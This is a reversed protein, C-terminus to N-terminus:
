SPHIYNWTLSMSCLILIYFWMNGLLRFLADKKFLYAFFFPLLMLSFIIRYQGSTLGFAALYTNSFYFLGILILFLLFLLSKKKLSDQLMNAVTLSMLPFLPIAYWGSHGTQSLTFLLLLIYILAPINIYKNTTQNQLSYFLGFIGLFYWPDNYVKNVITPQLFLLWLTGPGIDRGGQSFQIKLFQDFDYYAGYGLLLMGFSFFTALFILIYKRKAKGLLLLYLISLFLFIGLIKTLFALGCIIGLVIIRKTTIHKEVLIYLYIAGLMLLTLLNEAVVVRSNMIFMTASSYILLAWLGTKFGFLKTGLLFLLVPSCLSLIIPLLRITSLQIKQFTNEGFFLAWGGTALGNLPPHDFYPQVIPFFIRDITIDKRNQYPFYSWSIPIHKTLLSVGLFAYTYEDSTAGRQPYVSYNHLRIYFALLLVFVIIGIQLIKM